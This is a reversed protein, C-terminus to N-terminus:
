NWSWKKLFKDNVEKEFNRFLEFNQIGVTLLSQSSISVQLETSAKIKSKAKNLHSWTSIVETIFGKDLEVNNDVECSSGLFLFPCDFPFIIFHVFGVSSKM